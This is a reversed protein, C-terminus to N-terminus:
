TAASLPAPTTNRLCCSPSATSSAAFAWWGTRSGPLRRLSTHMRDQLVQSPQWTVRRLRAGVMQTRERTEGARGEADATHTTCGWLAVLIVVWQRQMRSSLWRYRPPTAGSPAPPHTSAPAARGCAGQLPQAVSPPPRPAPPAPPLLLPPPTDPQRCSPDGSRAVAMARRPSPSSGVWVRVESVCSQRHAFLPACTTHPAGRPSVSGQGGVAIPWSALKGVKLHRWSLLSKSGGCWAAAVAQRQSKHCCCCPQSCSQM